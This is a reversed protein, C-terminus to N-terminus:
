FSESGTSQEVFSVLERLLPGHMVLLYSGFLSKAGLALLQDIACECFVSKAFMNGARADM